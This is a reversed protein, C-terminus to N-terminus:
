DVHMIWNALARVGGMNGPSSWVPEDSVGTQIARTALGDTYFTVRRGTEMSHALIAVRGGSAVFGAIDIWTQRYFKLILERAIELAASVSNESPTSDGDARSVIEDEIELRVSKLLSEIAAARQVAKAPSAEKEQDASPM